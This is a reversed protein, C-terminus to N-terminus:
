ETRGSRELYWGLFDKLEPSAKGTEWVYDKLLIEVREDFHMGSPLSQHVVKRKPQEVVTQKKTSKPPNKPQPKEPKAGAPLEADVGYYVYGNPTSVRVLQPKSAGIAFYWLFSSARTVEKSRAEPNLFEAVSRATQGPNEEIFKVARESDRLEIEDPEGYSATQESLEEQEILDEETLVTPKSPNDDFEDSDEAFVEDEEPLIEKETPPEIGLEDEEEPEVEPKEDEDQQIPKEILQTHMPTFKTLEKLNM